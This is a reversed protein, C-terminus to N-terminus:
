PLDMSSRLGSLLLSSQWAHVPRHLEVQREQICLRPKTRSCYLLGRQFCKFQGDQKPAEALSGAPPTPRARPSAAAARAPPAPSRAPPAAAPCSPCSWRRAARASWGSGPGCSGPPRAAATRTGPSAWGRTRQGDKQASAHDHAHQKAFIRDPWLLIEALQKVRFSLSPCLHRSPVSSAHLSDDTM